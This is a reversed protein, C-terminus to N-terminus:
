SDPTLPIHTHPPSLLRPSPRLIPHHFRGPPLASVPPPRLDVPLAPLARAWARCVLRLKVVDASSAGGGDLMTAVMRVPSHPAAAWGGQALPPSASSMAGDGLPPADAAADKEGCCGSLFSM